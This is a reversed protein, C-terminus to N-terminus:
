SDYVWDITPRRLRPPDASGARGGRPGDRDALMKAYVYSPYIRKNPNIKSRWEVLANCEDDTNDTPIEISGLPIGLAIHVDSDEILITEGDAMRLCTKHPDFNEVVWLGLCKPVSKNTLSLISEFGLECVSTKQPQNLNKLKKLFKSPLTRTRIKNPVFADEKKNPVVPVISESSSLGDSEVRESEFSSSDPSPDAVPVDDTFDM